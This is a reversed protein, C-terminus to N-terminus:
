TDRSDMYSSGPDRAEICIDKGESVLEGELVTKGKYSLKWGLNTGAQKMTIGATFFGNKYSDDLTGNVRLDLVANKKRM